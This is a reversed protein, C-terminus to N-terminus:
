ERIRRDIRNRLERKPLSIHRSIKQSTEPGHLPVKGHVAVKGNVFGDAQLKPCFQEIDQIMRIKALRISEEAGPSEPQRVLHKSLAETAPVQSAATKTRKVLNAPRAGDLKRELQDESGKILLRMRTRSIGGFRGRLTEM